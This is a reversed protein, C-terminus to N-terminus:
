RTEERIRQVMNRKFVIRKEERKIQRDLLDVLEAARHSPFRSISHGLDAVSDEILVSAIPGVAYSLQDNLYDFFDGNLISGAEEVLEVLHLELLKGIVERMDSMSLSGKALIEGLSKRGDLEVLVNLMQGDFSFETLDDRVVRRFVLASIDGTSVDM